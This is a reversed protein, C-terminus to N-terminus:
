GEEKKAEEEDPATLAEAEEATIPEPNEMGKKLVDDLITNVARTLAKVVEIYGFSAESQGMQIDLDFTNHQTNERNHSVSIKQTIDFSIRPIGFIGAKGHLKTETDSQIGTAKKIMAEFTSKIEYKQIELTRGDELIVGPLLLSYKVCRMITSGDAQREDYVIHQEFQFPKQEMARIRRNFALDKAQNDAVFADNILTKTVQSLGSGHEALMAGVGM